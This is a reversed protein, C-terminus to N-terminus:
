NNFWCKRVRFSLIFSLRLTCFTIIIQQFHKKRVIQYSKATSIVHRTFMIIKKHSSPWGRLQTKTETEEYNYIDVHTNSICESGQWLQLAKKTFKFTQCYRSYTEIQTESNPFRLKCNRLKSEGFWSM